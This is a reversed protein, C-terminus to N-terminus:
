RAATSGAAATRALWSQLQGVLAAVQDRCLKVNSGDVEFAMEALYEVGSGTTADRVSMVVGPDNQCLYDIVRWGKV